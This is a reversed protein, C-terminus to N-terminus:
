HWLIGEREKKSLNYWWALLPVILEKKLTMEIKNEDILRLIENGWSRIAMWSPEDQICEQM